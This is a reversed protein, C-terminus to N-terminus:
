SGCVLLPSPKYNFAARSQFPATIVILVSVTSYRRWVAIKKERREETEHPPSNDAFSEGEAEGERENEEQVIM